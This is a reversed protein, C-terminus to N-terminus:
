IEHLPRPAPQPVGERHSSTNKAQPAKGSPRPSFLIVPMMSVSIFTCIQKYLYLNDRDKM